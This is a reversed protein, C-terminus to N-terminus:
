LIGNRSYFELTLDVISRVNEKPQAHFARYELPEAKLVNTVFHKVLPDDM